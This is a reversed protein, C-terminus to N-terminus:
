IDDERSISIYLPTAGGGQVRKFGGKPLRPIAGVRVSNCGDRLFHM